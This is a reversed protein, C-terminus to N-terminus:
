GEIMHKKRCHPCIIIQNKYVPPIKLKTGCECNIVKYDALDRVLDEVMRHKKINEELLEKNEKITQIQNDDAVMNLACAASAFPDIKVEEVPKIEITESNEIASQPILKKNNLKQFEKEYERYDASTMNLLVQVRNQTAPHTSCWDDKKNLPVIFSAKVLNDNCEPMRTSVSNEINLLADALGKPYRTYQAACADALYERKRSIFMFLIFCVGQGILSILLLLLFIAAGKGRGRLCEIFFASLAASITFLAGSCLLYTTDRNAIHSMEHAIVGQLEDRSLVEILKKSIVISSNKPNFGCAYANLINSNLIYIDPIVEVGSAIVVEEVINYIQKNKIKNIKHITCNDMSYPRNKVFSFRTVFVMLATVVGLGYLIVSSPGGSFVDDWLRDEAANSFKSLIGGSVLFLIIAFVLGYIVSYWLGMVSLAIASKQKNKQIIEWM